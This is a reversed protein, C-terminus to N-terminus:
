LGGSVGFETSDIFGRPSFHCATLEPHELSTPCYPAPVPLLGTRCTLHCTHISTVAHPDHIPEFPEERSTGTLRFVQGYFDIGDDLFEL